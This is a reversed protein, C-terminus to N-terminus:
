EASRLLSMCVSAIMCLLAAIGYGPNADEPISALLREELRAPIGRQPVPRAIRDHVGGNRWAADDCACYRMIRGYIRGVRRYICQLAM